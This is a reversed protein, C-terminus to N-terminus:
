SFRDMTFNCCSTVWLFNTVKKVWQPVARVIVTPSWLNEGGISNPAFYQLGTRCEVLGQANASLGQLKNQSVPLLRVCCHDGSSVCCIGLLWEARLLLPLRCGQVKMQPLPLVHSAWLSCEFLFWFSIGLPCRSAWSLGLKPWWILCSSDLNSSWHSGAWGRNVLAGPQLLRFIKLKDACRIRM